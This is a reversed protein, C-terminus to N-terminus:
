SCLACEDVATFDEYLHLRTAHYMAIEFWSNWRSSVPVPPLKIESNAIFDNLYKLYRSKQSPKKFLSSKIKTIMDSTHKFHRYHLFFEAALNVLALRLIHLSKAFVASLVDSM